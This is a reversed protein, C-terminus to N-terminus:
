IYILSVLKSTSGKKDTYKRGQKFILQRLWRLINLEKLFLLRKLLQIM